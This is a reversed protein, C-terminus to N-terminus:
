PASNPIPRLGYTGDEKEYIEVSNDTPTLHTIQMNNDLIKSRRQEALNTDINDTETALTIERSRLASGLEIKNNYKQVKIMNQKALFFANDFLTNFYKNIESEGLERNLEGHFLGKLQQLKDNYKVEEVDGVEIEDANFSIVENFTIVENEKDDKGINDRMKQYISKCDEHEKINIIYKEIIEDMTPMETIKPKQKTQEYNYYDLLRYYKKWYINRCDYKTKIKKLILTYMRIFILEAYAQKKTESDISEYIGKRKIKKKIKEIINEELDILQRLISAKFYQKQKLLECAKEADSYEPDKNPYLDQIYRHVTEITTKNVSICSGKGDSSLKKLIGKVKDTDDLAKAAREVEFQVDYAPKMDEYTTETNGGRKRSHRVSKRRIPKRGKTKRKNQTQKRKKSFKRITKGM